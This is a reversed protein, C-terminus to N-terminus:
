EKEEKEEKEDDDDDDIKTDDDDGIGSFDIEEDGVEESPAEADAESDFEETEIDGGFMEKVDVGKEELWGKLVDWNEAPVKIKNEEFETTPEMSEEEGGEVNDLETAEEGQDGLGLEDSAGLDDGEAPKEEEDDAENLYNDKVFALLSEKAATADTETKDEGEIGLDLGDDATDDAEAPTEETPEETDAPVEEPKAEVPVREAMVGLEELEAIAAEPDDVTIIFETIEVKEVGEDGNLNTATEDGAEEEGEEGTTDVSDLDADTLEDAEDAVAENLQAKGARLNEIIEKMRLVRKDSETLEKEIDDLEGDDKNEKNKLMKHLKPDIKGGLDNAESVEETELLNAFETSLKGGLKGSQKGSLPHVEFQSKTTKVGNKTKNGKKPKASEDVDFIGPRGKDEFDHDDELEDEPREGELDEDEDDPMDFEPSDEDDEFDEEGEDEDEFEEVSEDEEGEEGEYEALKAELEALKDELEEIRGELDEDELEDDDEDEEFREDDEFEVEDAPGEDELDEAEEDEDEPVEFEPTEGMEDEDEMEDEEDEFEEESENLKRNQRASELIASFSKRANSVSESVNTSEAPVFQNVLRHGLNSLKFYTVGNKSEAIFYKANRKLFMNAAAVTATGGEKLGLIFAKLTRKDVSQNEAVYSLVQNRIPANTGATIAPRVGYKRKLPISKSETLYETLTKPVYQKKM